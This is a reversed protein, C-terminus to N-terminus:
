HFLKKKNIFVTEFSNKNKVCIWFLHTVENVFVLRFIVFM